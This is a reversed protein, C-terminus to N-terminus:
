NIDSSSLLLNKKDLKKDLFLCIINIISGSKIFYKNKNIIHILFENDLKDKFLKFFNNKIITFDIYNKEIYNILKNVFINLDKKRLKNIHYLNYIDQILYDIKYNIVDQINNFNNYFSSRSINSKKSLKSITIDNINQELLLDFLNNSIINKINTKM